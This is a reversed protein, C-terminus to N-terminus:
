LPDSTACRGVKARAERRVIRLTARSQLPSIPLACTKVGTVYLYRIGDEAQFFFFFLPDTYQLFIFSDPLIQKKILMYYNYMNHKMNLNFSYDYVVNLWYMINM